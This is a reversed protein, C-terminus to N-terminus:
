EEPPYSWGGGQPLGLGSGYESAAADDAAKGEQHVQLLDPLPFINGNEAERDEYLQQYLEWQADSLLNAEYAAQVNAFAADWYADLGEQGNRNM